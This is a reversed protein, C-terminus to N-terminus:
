SPKYTNMSESPWLMPVSSDRAYHNLTESAKEKLELLPAITQRCQEITASSLINM